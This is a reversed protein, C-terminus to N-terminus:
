PIMKPIWYFVNLDAVDEDKVGTVIHYSAPNSIDKIAKRFDDDITKCKITYQRFYSQIVNGNWITMIHQVDDWTEWISVQFKNHQKEVEEFSSKLDSCVFEVGSKWKISNATVECCTEIFVDSKKHVLNWCSSLWHSRGPGNIWDKNWQIGNKVITEVDM